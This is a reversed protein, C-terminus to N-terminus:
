KKNLNILLIEEFFIDFLRLTKIITPKIIRAIRKAALKNKKLPDVLYEFKNLESLKMASIEPVGIEVVFNRLGIKIVFADRIDRVPLTCFQISLGSPRRGIDHM